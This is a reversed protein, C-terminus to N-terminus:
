PSTTAQALSRHQHQNPTQARSNQSLTLAMVLVIPDDDLVLSYLLTFSIRYNMEGKIVKSLHQAEQELSIALVRRPNSVEM